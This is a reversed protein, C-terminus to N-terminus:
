LHLPPYLPNDSVFLPVGNHIGTDRHFSDIM